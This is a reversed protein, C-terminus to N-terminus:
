VSTPTGSALERQEKDFLARVYSMTEAVLPLALRM